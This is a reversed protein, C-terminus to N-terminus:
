RSIKLKIGIYSGIAIGATLYIIIREIGIM